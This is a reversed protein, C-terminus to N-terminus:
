SKPDSRTVPGIQPPATFLGPDTPCAFPASNLIANYSAEKIFLALYGCQGGGLTTPVTQANIKGQKFLKCINVINPQGHIKSLDKHEFYKNQYDPLNYVSIKIIKSNTPHSYKNM